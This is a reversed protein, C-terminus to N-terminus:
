PLVPGLIRAAIDLGPNTSGREVRVLAELIQSDDAWLIRNGADGALKALNDFDIRRRSSLRFVMAVSVPATTPTKIRRLRRFEWALTYEAQRTEAPTWSRGTASSRPRGKATPEGPITAAIIVPGTGSILDLLGVPTM